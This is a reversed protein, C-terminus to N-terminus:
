ILVGVFLNVFGLKKKLSFGKDEERDNNNSHDSHASM